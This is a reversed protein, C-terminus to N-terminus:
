RFIDPYSKGIGQQIYTDRGQLKKLTQQYLDKKIQLQNNLETAPPTKIAYSGFIILSYISLLFILALLFWTPHEKFAAVLYNGTKKTKLLYRNM